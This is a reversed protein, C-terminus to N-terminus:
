ANDAHCAEVANRTLLQALELGMRILRMKRSQLGEIARQYHHGSTKGILNRLLMSKLKEKADLQRSKSAELKSTVIHCVGFSFLVEPGERCVIYEYPVLNMGDRTATVIAVDAVSYLAIKEYLPVPRDLWIIPKYEETGYTENIRKVLALVFQNLESIDKGSSRCMVSFNM